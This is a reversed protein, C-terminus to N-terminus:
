FYRTALPLRRTCKEFAVCSFNQKLSKQNFPFLGYNGGKDKRAVRWEGSAVRWEGSAVRWEGSAVRWEGSAVRNIWRTSSAVERRVKAGSKLFRVHLFNPINGDDCVNVVAFCCQYVLHKM